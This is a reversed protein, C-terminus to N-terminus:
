NEAYCVGITGPGSYVGVIASIQGILYVHEIDPNQLLMNQIKNADEEVNGHVIYADCKKARLSSKKWNWWNILLKTKVGSRGMPLANVMSRM